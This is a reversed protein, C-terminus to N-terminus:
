SVKIVSAYIPNSPRYDWSEGKILGLYLCYQFDDSSFDFNENSKLEALLDKSEMAILMPEVVRKVRPDRLSALLSDIHPDRRRMLNDAAQDILKATINPRYDNSLIEEIAERSLANVLWPQGESWYFARQVAEDEFIQGTAETHRSYLEKVEAYAFDALTLVEAVINFCEGVYFSEVEPSLRARYDLINRAGVLAISRPFPAETRVVYGASLQSLFSVLPRDILSDVDDFFVVLDKDLKESLSNLWVHVPFSKFGPIANLSALFGDYVSSKLAEVQSILLAGNLSDVIKRTATEEDFTERLEELACYLAYYSGEENIRNVAAKIATTKGSQRPAHLIFYQKQNILEQVGQLRRWAPSM